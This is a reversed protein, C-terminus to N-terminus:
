GNTRECLGTNTAFYDVVLDTVLVPAIFVAAPPPSNSFSVVTALAGLSHAVVAVPSGFRDAMSDLGAAMQGVDSRRRPDSGHGPLDIAVVRFGSSALGIALSGLQAAWGGWGHALFVLPDDGLAYGPRPQGRVSLTV